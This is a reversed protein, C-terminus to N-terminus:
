SVKGSRITVVNDNDVTPVSVRPVLEDMVEHLRSEDYDRCAEDLARLLRQLKQPEVSAHRAQLIKPHCTPAMAENAYFLEENLKEGPRLGVYCIEIDRGPVCGSLRIMQEALYTIKVPEGMDLIFIEGGEGMAGAQLILQCAEPITMFYRQMDPHTVTVPGGENIQKQFLPVVSGDSGLVNGFRVTIFRTGGGNMQDCLIEAARKSRGLMNIPNVAKDTSIFVFKECGNKRASEALCRTGLVNNYVAERPSSELIPVHKYAATHFVLQPRFKSLIRDVAAQDCVDGLIPEVVLHGFKKSLDAQINYLNFEAKEVILMRAPQLAAIQRCLESGISGGGGSVLVTRGSIAQQIATWDLEVKARGLLDEISVARLDRSTAQGSLMERLSPLACFPCEAQECVEVIHQMETNSASPIAIAILGVEYRNVTEILKDLGGFVPLGQVQGGHLKSNDDIFGVPADTGERLMDRALKEGARGAGVILVRRADPNIRNLKFRHDKYLRYGLRPGGLLLILFAPYLVLISRPVGQLRIQIFLLLAISLAGLAAARIINWLDPISAFRWLGRYLGFYWFILGQILLIEPLLEFSLKWDLYPYDFNFRVLWALHWALAVMAIDHLTVIARRSVKSQM